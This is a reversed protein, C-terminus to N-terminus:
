RAQAESATNPVPSVTSVARVLASWSLDDKDLVADVVGEMEGRAVFGSSSIVVVVDSRKAKLARAFSVGTHRSNAFRFDTVVAWLRGLLAPDRESETWFAEPSTFLQVHAAGALANRWSMLFARSDDVVALELLPESPGPPTEDLKLVSEAVQSPVERSHAPLRPPAFPIVGVEPLTFRFIVNWEPSSGCRISGGHAAVIRQAIALGLGTGTPKNRTFFPDFLSPLDQEPVPPGDNAISFAVFKRGADAVSETRFAITGRYDSAQVANAIINSFVRRVKKADVCVAGRHHLDYKLTVDATPYARLTELLAAGILAEASAPEPSQPLVDNSIDMIDQLLAEASEVALEIEAYLSAAQARFEPLDRAASVTRFASRVMAFPRRIDHALMPALTGVAVARQQKAQVDRAIRLSHVFVYQSMILRLAAWVLPESLADVSRMSMGVALDERFESTKDCQLGFFFEGDSCTFRMQSGHETALTATDIGRERLVREELEALRTGILVYDTEFTRSLKGRLHEQSPPHEPDFEFHIGLAEALQGSLRARRQDPANVNRDRVLKSLHRAAAALLEARYPTLGNPARAIDRLSELERRYFRPNGYLRSLVLGREALSAAEDFAGDIVCKLAALRYYIVWDLRDDNREAAARSAAAAKDAEERNGEIALLLAQAGHIQLHHRSSGLAFSRAFCRQIQASLESFQGASVMVALLNTDSLLAFFASDQGYRAQFLLHYRRSLAIDGCMHYGIALLPYTECLLARDNLRHARALVSRLLRLGRVEGAYADGYGLWAASRLLEGESRSLAIQLLALGRCEDLDHWFYAFHLARLAELSTGARMRSVGLARGLARQSRGGPRAVLLRRSYVAAALVRVVRRSLVPVQISARLESAVRLADAHRSLTVLYHVFPVLLPVRDSVNSTEELARRLAESAAALDGSSAYRAAGGM